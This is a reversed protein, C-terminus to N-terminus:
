LVSRLSMDLRSHLLGLLSELECAPVSLQASFAVRVQALLTERASSLWRAATSRHVGYLMGLADISLGDVVHQRLLLRTRADLADIAERFAASFAPRYAGKVFELEPDQELSLHELAADDHRGSRNRRQVLKLAIRIASVRVFGALDGRGSYQLIRAGAGRDMLLDERLQQRVEEVEFPALRVRGLREGVLAQVYRAEFAALAQPDAAACAFALGLEAIRSGHIAEAGTMGSENPTLLQSLVHEAFATEDLRFAWEPRAEDVRRTLAQRISERTDQARITNSSM